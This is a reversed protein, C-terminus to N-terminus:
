EEAAVSIYVGDASDLHCPEGDSHTHFYCRGLEQEEDRTDTEIHTERLSKRLNFDHATIDRAFELQDELVNLYDTNLKSDDLFMANFIMAAVFLRLKSRRRTHDYVSRITSPLPVFSSPGLIRHNLEQDILWADLRNAFANPIIVTSEHRRFAKCANAPRATPIDSEEDDPDPVRM